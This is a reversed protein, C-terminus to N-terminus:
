TSARMGLYVGLSSDLIVTIEVLSTLQGRLREAEPLKAASLALGKTCHCRCAYDM